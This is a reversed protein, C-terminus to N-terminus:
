QTAEAGTKPNPVEPAEWEGSVSVTVREYNGFHGKDILLNLPTQYRHYQGRCTEAGCLRVDQM